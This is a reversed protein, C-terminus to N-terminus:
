PADEMMFGDEEPLWDCASAMEALGAALTVAARSYTPSDILLREAKRVQTLLQLLHARAQGVSTCELCVMVHEREEEATGGSM